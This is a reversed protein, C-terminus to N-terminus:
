VLSVLGGPEAASSGVSNRCSGAHLRQGKPADEGAAADEGDNEEDYDDGREFEASHLDGQIQAAGTESTATGAVMAGQKGLALAIARGIGRSAGTVLAVQGNLMM